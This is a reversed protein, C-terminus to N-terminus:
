ATEHYTKRMEETSSRMWENHGCPPMLTQAYKPVTGGKKGRWFFDQHYQSSNMKNQRVEETRIGKLFFFSNAIDQIEQPFPSLFPSLRQHSISQFRDITLISGDIHSSPGQGEKFTGSRPSHRDGKESRSVIWLIKKKGSVFAHNEIAKSKYRVSLYIYSLYIAYILVRCAMWYPIAPM